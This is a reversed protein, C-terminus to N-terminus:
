DGFPFDLFDSFKSSGAPPSFKKEISRLRTPNLLRQANENGIKQAINRPFLSLFKRYTRAVSDAQFFLTGPDGLDFALIFRDPYNKCLKALVKGFDSLNGQNDFLEDQHGSLDMFLNKYQKLLYDLIQPFNKRLPQPGTGCNALIFDTKPNQALARELQQFIAKTGPEKENLSCITWHCLVPVRFQAAVRYIKMLVPNDGAIRRGHGNIFLEGIGNFKENTLRTKVYDVSSEWDTHFDRLFALFRDPYKRAAELAVQDPDSETLGSVAMLCVGNRDMFSLLEAFDQEGRYFHSHIDVLALDPFYVKEASDKGAAVNSFAVFVLLAIIKQFRNKVSNDFNRFPMARGKPCDAM